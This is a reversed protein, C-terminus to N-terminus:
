LLHKLVRDTSVAVSLGNDVARMEELSFYTRRGRLLIGEDM